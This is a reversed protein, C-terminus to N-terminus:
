CPLEYGTLTGDERVLVQAELEVSAPVEVGAEAVIGRLRARSGVRAGAMLVSDEIVADEEIDCDPGLVCRRLRAGAGLRAGSGLWVPPELRARALDEVDGAAYIGERVRREAAQALGGAELIALSALLYRAPDGLEYWASADPMVRLVRGAALAAPDVDHNIDFVEAPPFFDLLGPEIMHVGTFAYQRLGGPPLLPAAPRGAIRWLRNKDDAEVPRYKEGAKLARVVLTALAGARRHARALAKLDCGPLSDGNLLLFPEGELHARARAVGGGTGLPRESEESYAVELGLASGDGLAGRVTEGRHHLNVVLRRVGAEALRRAIEVILPRNLLPLAPKAVRATLPLMREGLGAALIM